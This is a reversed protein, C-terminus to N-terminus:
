GKHKFDKGDTRPTILSVFPTYAARTKYMRNCEPCFYEEPEECGKQRPVDVRFVAGCSCKEELVDSGFGM